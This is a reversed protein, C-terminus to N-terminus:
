PKYICKFRSGSLHPDLVLFWSGLSFIVPVLPKMVAQIFNSDINKSVFFLFPYRIYGHKDGQLLTGATEPFENDGQLVTGATEPFENDGQLLTGVTEPFENDGQLVTGATEPFKNDGQL